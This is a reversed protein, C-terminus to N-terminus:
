YKIIYGLATWPQMNNHGADGGKSDTTIAGDIKPSTGGVAGEGYGNAYSHQVAHSHSPMESASLTHMEEGGAAGLARDSLGPGMGAGIATRGRLDPLNFQDPGPSGWTTGIAAFLAPYMAASQAAGDCALWGAPATAGAFAVVTGAPVLDNTIDRSRYTSASEALRANAALHSYPATLLRQRGALGQGNVKVALYLDAQDLLTQAIPTTDGLLVSFRGGVVNVVKAETWSPTTAAAGAYLEFEMPVEQQTVPLGGQELLGRYPIPEPVGGGPVMSARAALGGFLSAVALAALFPRGRSRCRGPPPSVLELIM